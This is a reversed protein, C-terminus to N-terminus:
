IIILADAEIWGCYGCQTLIFVEPGLHIQEDHLIANRSPIYDLVLCIEQWFVYGIIESGGHDELKTKWLALRSVKWSESSFRTLSGVKM